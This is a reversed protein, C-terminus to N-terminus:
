PHALPILSSISRSTWGLGLRPAAPEISRGVSAPTTRSKDIPAPGRASACSPGRDSMRGAIWVTGPEEAAGATTGLAVGADGAGEERSVVGGIAGARESSRSTALRDTAM